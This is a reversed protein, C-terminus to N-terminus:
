LAILCLCQNYPRGSQQMTGAALELASFHCNPTSVDAHFTRFRLTGTLKSPMELVQLAALSDLRDYTVGLADPGNEISPCFTSLVLRLHLLDHRGECRGELLVDSNTARILIDRPAEDSSYFEPSIVQRFLSIGIVFGCGVLTASDRHKRTAATNQLMPM